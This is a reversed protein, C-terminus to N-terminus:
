ALHHHTLSALATRILDIRKAEYSNSYTRLLPYNLDISQAEDSNSDARVPRQIENAAYRELLTQGKKNVKSDPGEGKAFGSGTRKAWYDNLVRKSTAHKYLSLPLLRAAKEEKVFQIGGHFRGKAMMRLMAGPLMRMAPDSAMKKAASLAFIDGGEPSEQTNTACFTMQLRVPPASPGLKAQISSTIAELVRQWKRGSGAKFSALDMFRSDIVVISVDNSSKSCQVGMAIRHEGDDIIERWGDSSRQRPELRLEAELKKALVYGRIQERSDEAGMKDFHLNLMPDAINLGKIIAEIHDIDEIPSLTINSQYAAELRALYRTLAPHHKRALDMSLVPKPASSSLAGGGARPQLAATATSVSAEGPQSTVRLRQAEPQDTQRSPGEDRSRRRPLMSLQENRARANPGAQAIGRSNPTGDTPAQGTGAPTTTNASVDPVSHQRNALVRFNRQM